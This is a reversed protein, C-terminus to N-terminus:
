KAVLEAVLFSVELAKESVTASQKMFDVQRKNNKILCVIYNTNKDILSPHNAELHRKMKALVM